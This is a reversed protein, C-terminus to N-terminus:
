AGRRVHRPRPITAPTGLPVSATSAKRALPSEGQDLPAPPPQSLPSLTRTWAPSAQQSALLTPSMPTQPRSADSQAGGLM